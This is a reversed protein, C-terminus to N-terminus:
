NDSNTKFVVQQPVLDPNSSLNIPHARFVKTQHSRLQVPASFSNQHVGVSRGWSQLDNEDAREWLDFFEYTKTKADREPADFMDAIDVAVSLNRPSLNVLAVVTDGNDLQGSWMQLTGGGEIKRKWRRQAPKGLKDQNVAIIAKNTVIEYTENTMATLDHGLILPSKALAWMSFHTAYEDYTQGGNGVELMDMDNWHGPGAKQGLSASFEIIKSVSCHFGSMKCDIMTECPCYDDVTDFSDWVDGSIRWTESITPAWNWPGDEGWNCLAYVIPRGTKKLAKSMKNYRKFSAEPTGSQGENYCNDYKLYDVDWEAYTKADIEEYGLSAFRGACTHTGASSYIGFKLGLKHVEDAIYKIGKSFREPHALPASTNKDREDAHWCDDIIVYEYGVAQLGSDAIVKAADLITDQSIDCGFKNWSNWGLPPTDALGPRRHNAMKVEASVRLALTSLALATTTLM